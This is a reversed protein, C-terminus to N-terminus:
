ELPAVITPHRFATADLKKSLMGTEAYIDLMAQIGEFNPKAGPERAFDNPKLLYTDLVQIPAKTVESVVKLTEDRNALAKAMGATLDRVYRRALEPNRDVFDKRCVDMIHVINQQQDSLSFLKRLGGKAEARAAFPQNLVGVDVRGGRIADESAPFGTEVLKIDKEADVGHRKLLLAMPGYIGSGFVNIGVSRGKMDAVTKIPSDDKVAWYVSFSGPKEGVHQAVIYTQLNAQIAGQAMSLVGQTSCDLAGAAMAQVMPATGQFQVWEVKYSKGLEPFQDPRRMMWYKSEEAPITWGVRITPQASATSVGLLGMAAALALGLTRIM